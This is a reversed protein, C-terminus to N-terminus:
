VTAHGDSLGNLARNRKIKEYKQGFHSFFRRKDHYVNRKHLLSGLLSSVYSFSGLLYM